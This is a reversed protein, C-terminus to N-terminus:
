INTNDNHNINGDNGNDADENEEDGNDDKDTDKDENHNNKEDGTIIGAESCRCTSRTGCRRCRPLRLCGGGVGDVSGNDTTGNSM